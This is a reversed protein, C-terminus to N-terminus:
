HESNQNQITYRIRPIKAAFWHNAPIVCQPQADELVNGLRYTTINGDATIIHILLTGGHYHHWMEESSLKHWASFDTGNLLYYIGTSCSRKTDKLPHQVELKSKFTQAYYGGEPHPQLALKEVLTEVISRASM